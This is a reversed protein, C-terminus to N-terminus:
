TAQVAGDFTYYGEVQRPPTFGAACIEASFARCREISTSSDALGSIIGFRQHEGAVLFAAAARAGIDNTATICKVPVDPDINNFMVVPVGADKCEVAIRASRSTSAFVVGDVGYSLIEDLVPDLNEDGHTIFLVIRYNLAALRDALTQVVEPYFQNDLYTVAVGILRTRSTTLSRATHSPRYKLAAAAEQIKIKADESVVGGTYARSVASKSVGALRAVDSGTPRRSPKLVGPM